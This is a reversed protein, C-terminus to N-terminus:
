LINLFWKVSQLCLDCFWTIRETSNVLGKLRRRQGAIHATPNMKEIFMKIKYLPDFWSSPPPFTCSNSSSFVALSPKYISSSLTTSSLSTVNLANAFRTKLVIYALMLHALGESCLCFSLLPSFPLMHKDKQNHIISSSGTTRANHRSLGEPIRALSLMPMGWKYFASPNYSLAWVNINLSRNDCQFRM